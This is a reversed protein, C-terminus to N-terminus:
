TFNQFSSGTLLITINNKLIPDRDCNEICAIKIKKLIKDHELELRINKIM